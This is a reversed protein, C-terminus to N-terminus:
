QLKEVVNVTFLVDTPPKRVDRYTTSHTIERCMGRTLFRYEIEVIERPLLDFFTTEVLHITIDTFTDYLVTGGLSSLSAENRIHRTSRSRTM